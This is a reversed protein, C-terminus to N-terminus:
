SLPLSPSLHIILRLGQCQSGLSLTTHTHTHTHPSIGDIHLSYIDNHEIGRTWPAGSPPTQSWGGFLYLKNHKPIFAMSHGCMETPWNVEEEEEGKHRESVKEKEHRRTSRVGEEQAKHEQEREEEEKSKGVGGADDEEDSEIAKAVYANTDEEEAEELEWDSEHGEDENAKKVEPEFVKWTKTEAFPM